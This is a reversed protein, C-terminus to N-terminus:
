SDGMQMTGSLGYGRSRRFEKKTLDAATLANDIDLRLVVGLHSEEGNWCYGVSHLELNKNLFLSENMRRSGADVICQTSIDGVEERVHSGHWLTLKGYLKSKQDKEQREFVFVRNDHTVVVCAIIQVYDPNGEAQSRKLFKSNARLFEQFKELSEPLFCGNTCIGSGQLEEKSVVLINPDVFTNVEKLIEDILLANFHRVGGDSKMTVLKAFNDKYREAAADVSNTITALTTLNMIRGDGSAVRNSRERRLSEAADVQLIVGLDILSTWRELLVFSEFCKAEEDTLEGRDKQMNLWVLSDILGRDVIILDTETEFNALLEALMSTMCWTNFFLHGKMPLPCVAAREALVHVRFGHRSFFHRVAEVSTSKGSKPTGAFELVFARRAFSLLGRLKDAREELGRILVEDESGNM